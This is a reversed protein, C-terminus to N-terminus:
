FNKTLLAAVGSVNEQSGISIDKSGASIMVDPLDHPEFQISPLSWVGPYNHMKLSRKVYFTQDGQYPVGIIGFLKPLNSNM